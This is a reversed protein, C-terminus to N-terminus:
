QRVNININGTAPNVPDGIYTLQVRCFRATIVHVLPINGPISAFIRGVQNTAVLTPDDHEFIFGQLTIWGSVTDLNFLFHADRGVAPLYDNDISSVQYPKLNLNTRGLATDIMPLWIQTSDFIQFSDDIYLSESETVKMQPSAMKPIQIM